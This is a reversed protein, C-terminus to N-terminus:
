PGQVGGIMLLSSAGSKIIKIAVNIHKKWCGRYVDAFYGSGLKEELTFEEKPREWEKDPFDVEPKPKKQHLFCVCVKLEEHSLLMVSSSHM